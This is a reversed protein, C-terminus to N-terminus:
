HSGIYLTGGPFPKTEVFNRGLLDIWPIYYDDRNYTEPVFAIWDLDDYDGLAEWVEPPVREEEAPWVLIANQKPIGGQDIIDAAIRLSNALDKL